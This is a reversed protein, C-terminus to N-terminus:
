ADAHGRLMSVAAALSDEDGVNGAFVIYPLGQLEAEDGGEHVWVSVIGPFLQGLVTARAIGLAETAIDSSTIGGKAVVWAIESSTVVRRTIEVLSRSVERAIDLSAEGNAGDVRTRSTMLVADGTRLLISLERHCRELEGRSRAPDLLAPVDLEVPEIGRLELLRGVQRTTLPVHSGVVVLGHGEGDRRAFIEDHRLPARGETGARASVFTPGARCLLRAGAAEADLLGLVVIDLDAPETANVVIPVGDRAGRLIASVRPPGGVRIDELTLHLVDRAAYRGNTKEEVYERLNSSRFGFSADAAYETAGVPFFRDGRRVYQVDGATVRGAELYAPAVLVADYPRGARRAVDQLVDTELPFHGRLTSDGRAVLVYPVGAREAAADVASAVEAVIAAARQEGLSRSNTLVFLTRSPQEFAWRLDEPRWRTLETVGHVSQSGTPDDDLVVIWTGAALNAARIRARADPIDLVPPTGVLIEGLTQGGVTAVASGPTNM